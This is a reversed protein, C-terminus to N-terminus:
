HASLRAAALRLLAWIVNIGFILCGLYFSLLASIPIWAEWSALPADGRILLSMALFIAYGLAILIFSSVGRPLNLPRSTWRAAAFSISAFIVCTLAMAIQWELPGMVYYTGHVLIDPGLLGHNRVAFALIAVIGALGGFLKATLM